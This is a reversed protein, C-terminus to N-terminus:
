KTLFGVMPFLIFAADNVFAAKSDSYHGVLSKRTKLDYTPFFTKPNDFNENGVEVVSCKYM